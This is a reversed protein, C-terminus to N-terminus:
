PGPRPNLPVGQSVQKVVLAALDRLKINNRQSLTSLRAFAEDASCGYRAMIIGKAQDIEARSTLAVRLNEALASLADRDAATRLVASVSAGVMEGVRLQSPDVVDASGGYVTLVGRQDTGAGVPVALVAVAVGTVAPRRRLAPWRDDDALNETTVIERREYADLTPGQGTLMQEADLEQAWQNDSALAVPEQPPGLTLSVAAAGVLSLGVIETMRHLMPQRETEDLPLAALAALAPVAKSLEEPEGDAPHEQEVAFMWRLTRQQDPGTEALVSVTATRTPAGYPSLRLRLHSERAAGALAGVTQRLQRRDDAHVFTALPKGVLHDPHRAVVLAVAANAETIVGKPSTAVMPVPLLQLLRSRWAMGSARSSTLAEIQERQAALEEDAVRLEEQAVDLEGLARLFDREDPREVSV